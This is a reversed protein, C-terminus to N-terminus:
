RQRARGRRKLMEDAVEYALAAAIQPRTIGGIDGFLRKLEWEPLGSSHGIAHPLAQAAFYDRLSMGNLGSQMDVPYAPGGDKTADDGYAM